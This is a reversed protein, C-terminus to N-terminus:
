NASASTVYAQARAAESATKVCRGYAMQAAVDRSGTFCVSHAARAIRADLTDRGKESALNLDAYAITQAVETPAAAAPATAGLLCVGAFFLTGLAAIATRSFEPATTFM